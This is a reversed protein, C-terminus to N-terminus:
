KLDFLINQIGQNLATLFLYYASGPFNSRILPNRHGPANGTHYTGHTDAVFATLLHLFLHMLRLICQHVLLRLRSHQLTHSGTRVSTTCSPM